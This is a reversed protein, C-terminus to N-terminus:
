SSIVNIAALSDYTLPEVMGMMFKRTQEGLSSTNPYNSNLFSHYSDMFERFSAAKVTGLENLFEQQGYSVNTLYLLALFFFARTIRLIYRPLIAVSLKVM